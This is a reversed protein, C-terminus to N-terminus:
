LFLKRKREIVDQVYKGMIDRNRTVAEYKGKLLAIAPATYPAVIMGQQPIHRFVIDYYADIRGDDPTFDCLYYVKGNDLCAQRAVTCHEFDDLHLNHICTLGKTDMYNKLHQNANGCYHIGGGGFALLVRENYPKVFERYLDAPMIVSDDDSIWVTGKDEPIRMGLIYCPAEGGAGIHKKQLKVWAILADTCLNMLKHIQDPCDYMWFSFNEYGIISFATTLPGQCDTVGIPLDCHERFYDIQRLVRPMIGDKYPDPMALLDIEEPRAIESMHVAPDMKHLFEIKAGFGSALVGTGFWPMLFGIYCDNKYAENTYHEQTKKIQFQFMVDPDDGCYGDPINEPLDGFLWYNVDSIVYPSVKNEFSYVERISELSKQDKESYKGRLKLMTM